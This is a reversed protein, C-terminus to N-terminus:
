LLGRDLQWWRQILPFRFRYAGDDNQELYHDRQLLTLMRRITEREAEAHPQATKMLNFLKDFSVPGDAAIVDLVGLALPTRAAGYYNNLRQRYHRMHWGDQPDRLQRQVLRAVNEPTTTEDSYKLASVVHHIYYAVGDVAEAIATAVADLNTVPIQEGQLLRRALDQADAEALPSVNVVRMDNIPASEYGQEQLADIINHLGISGTLVMRLGKHMQRLQRLVDLVEMAAEEHESRKIKQLMFPFEDWFFVVREVQEVLDEVTRQLLIKWHPAAIEPLRITDGLEAGSLEKLFLRTKTALRKRRTLYGEVDAFVHQVFALPTEM